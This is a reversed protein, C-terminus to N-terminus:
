RKEAAWSRCAAFLRLRGRGHRRRDLCKRCSRRALHKRAYLGLTLAAVTPGFIDGVMAILSNAILVPWFSPLSFIVAAGLALVALALVIAGRKFRTGDIGAGIPAVRWAM